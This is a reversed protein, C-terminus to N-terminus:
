EQLVILRRQGNLSATPVLQSHVYLWGESSETQSQSAM